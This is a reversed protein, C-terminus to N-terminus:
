PAEPPPSGAVVEVDRDLGLRGQTAQYTKTTMGRSRSMNAKALTASPFAGIDRSYYAAPSPDSVTDRPKAARATVLKLTM